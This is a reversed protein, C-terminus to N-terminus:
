PTELLSSIRAALNEANERPSLSSVTKGDRDIYGHFSEADLLHLYRLVEDKDFTFGAQIEQLAKRCSVLNNVEFLGPAGRYWPYGFTLVPKGRMIAEFGATGTITAVARSHKTLTYTDTGIPVIKVNPLRGLAEYYGRFRYSFFDAGRYLWQTPHEKVYIEWGVPLSASLVEALYLQDVFIGGQPSSNREPQYHLPFYVYPKTFDPVAALCEYERRLNRRFRKFFSAFVKGFVSFDKHATLTTVLSRLKIRFLRLGSYQRKINKVFVPTADSDGCTQLEYERRIDHSLEELSVVVPSEKKARLFEPGALYDRMIIMRDSIWTPEMMITRIHYLKALSYIVFDYVTHPITPFIIADPAHKKITADWYSVYQYYLFKRESVSVREFHKNMMTLVISETECLRQLLSVDAPPISEDPKTPPVGHLADLYDHFVTGPFEDKYAKFEAKVGVVYVIDHRKKCLSIVDLMGLEKGSWGIFFLKM